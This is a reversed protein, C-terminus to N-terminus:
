ATHKQEVHANLAVLEPRSELLDLVAQTTFITGQRNLAAYVAELLRWDAATDLTWRHHSLDVPNAFNQLVFSEPHRYIYPTVHERDFPAVAQRHARELAAMTFIEADLGRPFTRKLTNSFYDPGPGGTSLTQFQSLMRELVQPDFLPCDATVRVVTEAGAERAALYYRSLVDEQSGRFSKVGCRHSEEVIIADEPRATTAVVVEDVRPCAKVRAIVQSLVTKGSLNKMVKGPLRTSGMRAQIIAVTKM